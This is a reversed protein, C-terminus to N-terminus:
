SKEWRRDTLGSTEEHPTSSSIRVEWSQIPNWGRLAGLTHAWLFKDEGSWIRQMRGWHLTVIKLPATNCLHYIICNSNRQPLIINRILLCSMIEVLHIISILILYCLSCLGSCRSPHRHEYMVFLLASTIVTWRLTEIYYPLELYTHSNTLCAYYSLDWCLEGGLLTLVYTRVNNWVTKLLGVEWSLTM